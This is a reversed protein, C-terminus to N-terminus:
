AGTLGQKYADAADDITPFPITEWEGREDAGCWVWRDDDIRKLWVPWLKKNGAM